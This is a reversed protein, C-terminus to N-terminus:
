ILNTLTYLLAAEIAEEPTKYNGQNYILRWFPMQKVRTLTYAYFNRDGIDCHSSIDIGFNERIWKIALAHTPRSWEGYEVNEKIYNKMLESNSYDRNSGFENLFGGQFVGVGYGDTGLEYHDSCPSDFGKEKLLKSVEFSCYDEQINNNM